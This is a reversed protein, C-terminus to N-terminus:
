SDRPSPSTYLLCAMQIKEASESQWSSLKQICQCLEVPAKEEAANTTRARRKIAMERQKARRIREESSIRSRRRKATRREDRGSLSATINSCSTTFDHCKHFSTAAYRVYTKDIGAHLEDSWREPGIIEDYLYVRMM